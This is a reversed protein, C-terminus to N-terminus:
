EDEESAILRMQVTRSIPWTGGVGPFNTVTQFDYSVTVRVYDNGSGDKGSTWTVTPAPTLDTADALAAEEISAYPCKEALTMDSGFMAGNRACNSITVAYYYIRAFDVAAVFLFVLFPLVLALEM